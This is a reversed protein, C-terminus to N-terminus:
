AFGSCFIWVGWIFFCSWLFLLLLVGCLCFLVFNLFGVFNLVNMLTLSDFNRNFLLPDFPIFLEPFRLHRGPLCFFLIGLSM